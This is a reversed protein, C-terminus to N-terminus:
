AAGGRNAKPALYRSKLRYYSRAFFLAQQRIPYIRRPFFVLKNFADFGQVIDAADWAVIRDDQDYGWTNHRIALEPTRFEVEFHLPGEIVLPQMQGADRVAEAATARLRARGEQLFARSKEGDLYTEKRKDVVVSLAWPLARLAQEVAVEEGSVFGIPKGFAGLYAGYLDMECIPRDNLRVQSFIGYHTHPFFAGPTGSAAHIAVYLVLDYSALDGFFSPRVYHGGVYRVRPDLRRTLINFGTAHTDKVTVRDAGGDFAGAVVHNVDHTLCERGYQWEPTGTHCQRMRWIGFAGELDAFVAIHM